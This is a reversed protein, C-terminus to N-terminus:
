KQEALHTCLSGRESVRGISPESWDTALALSLHFSLHVFLSYPKFPHCGGVGRTEESCKLDGGRGGITLM